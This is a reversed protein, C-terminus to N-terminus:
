KGNITNAMAYRLMAIMVNIHHMQHRHLSDPRTTRIATTEVPSTTITFTNTNKM